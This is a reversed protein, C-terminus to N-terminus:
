MVCGCVAVCIWGCVWVWVDRVKLTGNERKLAAIAKDRKELEDMVHAVRASEEM